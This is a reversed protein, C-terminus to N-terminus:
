KNHTNLSQSCGMVVNSSTYACVQAWLRLSHPSAKKYTGFLGRGFFRLRNQRMRWHRTPCPCRHTLAKLLPRYTVQSTQNGSKNCWLSVLREEPQASTRLFPVQLFGSEGQMVSFVSANM